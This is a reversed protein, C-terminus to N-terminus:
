LAVWHIPEEPLLSPEVSEPDRGRGADHPPEIENAVITAALSEVSEDGFGDFFSRDFLQGYLRPDGTKRYLVVLADGDTVLASHWAALDSREVRKEIAIILDDINMGAGYPM